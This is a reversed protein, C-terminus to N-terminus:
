QSLYFRVEGTAKTLTLQGDRGSLNGIPSLSIEEMQKDKDPVNPDKVKKLFANHEAIRKEDYYREIKLSKIDVYPVTLLVLDDKIWKVKTYFAKLYTHNTDLVRMITKYYPMVAQPLHVSDSLRVYGNAKIWVELSDVPKTQAKADACFLIFTISLFVAKM